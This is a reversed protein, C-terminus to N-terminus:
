DALFFLGTDANVPPQVTSTVVPTEGPYNEFTVHGGAASGSVNVTVREDYTGARVLARDGPALTDAAKQITGWPLALTGPGGDNGGPAVYYDMAMAAFPLIFLLTLLRV